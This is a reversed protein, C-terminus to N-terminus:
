KKNLKIILIIPYAIGIILGICMLVLLLNENLNLEISGLFLMLFGFFLSIWVRFTCLFLYGFKNEPKSSFFLFKEENSKIGTFLEKYYPFALLFIIITIILYIATWLM